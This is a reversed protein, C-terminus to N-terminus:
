KKPLDAKWIKGMTMVGTERQTRKGTHTYGKAYVYTAMYSFNQLFEGEVKRQKVKAKM